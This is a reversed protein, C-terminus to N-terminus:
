LIAYSFVLHCKLMLLWRWPCVANCRMLGCDVDEGSDCGWIGCCVCMSCLCICLCDFSYNKGITATLSDKRKHNSTTNGNVPREIIESDSLVCCGNPKGHICYIVHQIPSQDTSDSPLSGYVVAKKGVRCCFQHSNM